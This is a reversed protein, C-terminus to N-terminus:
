TENKKKKENTEVAIVSKLKNSYVDYIQPLVNRKKIWKNYIQMM